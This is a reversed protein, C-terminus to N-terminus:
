PVPTLLVVRDILGDRVHYAVFAEIGLGVSDSTMHEDDIVWEGRESRHRVVVQMDGMQEFWAGYQARVAEAGQMQVAGTGDTVVVDDAYCAVFADLDHANFADAQRAVLVTASM